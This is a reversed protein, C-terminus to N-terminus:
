MEMFRIGECCFANFLELQLEWKPLVETQLYKTAFHSYEQNLWTTKCLIDNKVNQIKLLLTERYDIQLDYSCDKLLKAELEFTGIKDPVTPAIYIKKYLIGDNSIHYMKFKKTKM